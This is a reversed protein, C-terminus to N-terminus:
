YLRTRRVTQSNKFNGFFMFIGFFAQFINRFYVDSLVAFDLAEWGLEVFALGFETAVSRTRTAAEIQGSGILAATEHNSFVRVTSYLDKIKIKYQTLLGHLFYLKGSGEQRVGWKLESHLLSESSCDDTKLIPHIIIGREKLRECM